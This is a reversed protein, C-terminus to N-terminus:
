QNDDGKFVIEFETGKNEKSQVSITGGHAHVLEKVIALGLGTGGLARTRAKEVRYFRNFIYPLDSEPIGKGNDNITIVTDQKKKVATLVTKGGKFSYKISNDLLNLIIQELRIPDAMISLDKPCIIELDMDKELFAPALKIQIRNLIEDLRITKKQIVFSNKDIRALDFLDKILESLHITEEFIIKLYIEQEESKLDRKLVIDTYGKIYTLPTRLEHSISALFDSREQTLYNLEDALSKISKALDGLEDNGVKPLRVSFKGNSILSTAEKMEILPRTLAKSLFIIIIFTIIVAIVGAIFFHENLRKILTQVSKTDQFMTVYGVTGGKIQIPSSTSIFPETRWDEEVVKGKRPIEESKDTYDPLNSAIITSSGLVKGTMDTIMVDTNSESEMLSVHAITEPDFHKELIARHSNGRAQLATLEEDVRSDVLASHLFIFMFTEIGISIIFFLTGLKVSLKNM